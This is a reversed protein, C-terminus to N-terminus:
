VLFARFRSKKNRSPSPRFVPSICKPGDRERYSQASDCSVLYITRCINMNTADIRNEDISRRLHVPVTHDLKHYDCVWGGQPYPSYHRRLNPEDQLDDEDNDDDDDFARRTRRVCGASAQPPKPLENEAHVNKQMCDRCDIVRSSIPPRAGAFGIDTQTITSPAVQSSNEFPPCSGPELIPDALGWDANISEWSEWDFFTCSYCQLDPLGEPLTIGCKKCTPINQAPLFTHTLTDQAMTIPVTPSVAFCSYQEKPGSSSDLSYFNCIKELSKLQGRCLTNSGCAPPNDETFVPEYTTLSDKWVFAAPLHWQQRASNVLLQKSVRSELLALRDALDVM